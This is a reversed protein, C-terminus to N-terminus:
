GPRRVGGFLVPAGGQEYCKWSLQSRIVLDELLHYAGTIIQVRLGTHQSGVPPIPAINDMLSMQRHYLNRLLALALTTNTGRRPQAPPLTTSLHPLPQHYPPHAMRIGGEVTHAQGVRAGNGVQALVLTALTM